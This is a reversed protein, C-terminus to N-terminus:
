QCVPAQEMFLGFGIVRKIRPNDSSTSTKPEFSNRSYKELDGIFYTYNLFM